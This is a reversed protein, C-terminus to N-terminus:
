FSVIVVDGLWSALSKYWVKRILLLIVGARSGDIVCGRGSVGFM